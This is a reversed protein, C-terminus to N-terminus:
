LRIWRRIGNSTRVSWLGDDEAMERIVREEGELYDPEGDIYNVEICHSEEYWVLSAIEGKFM